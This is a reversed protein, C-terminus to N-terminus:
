HRGKTKNEEEKREKERLKKLSSMRRHERIKPDLHDFGSIGNEKAWNAIMNIDHKKAM